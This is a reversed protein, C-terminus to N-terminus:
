KIIKINDQEFDLEFRYGDKKYEEPIITEQIIKMVQDYAIKSEMFQKEYAKFPLSDILTNDEDYKHLEFLMTLIDQKAKYDEFKAQVMEILNKDCEVRTIEKM